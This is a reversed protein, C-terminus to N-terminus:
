ESPTTPPNSTDFSYSTLLMRDHESLNGMLKLAQLPDFNMDLPIEKVDDPHPVTALIPTASTALLVLALVQAAMQSAALPLFEGKCPFM